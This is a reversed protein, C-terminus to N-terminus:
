AVALPPARLAFREALPRVPGPVFAVVSWASPAAVRRRAVRARLVLRAVAQGAHLVLAFALATLSVGVVAVLLASPTLAAFAPHGAEVSRELSEQALLIFIATTALRRSAEGVPASSRLWVPRALLAVAIGALAVGPEYWGFYAHLGDTPRFTGYLLAHAGLACLAAPVIRIRV